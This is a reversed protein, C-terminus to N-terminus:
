CKNKKLAIVKLNQTYYINFSVHFATQEDINQM